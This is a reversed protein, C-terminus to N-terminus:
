SDCSSRTAPRAMLDMDDNRDTDIIHSYITLLVNLDHGLYDAVRYPPIGASLMLSGATHRLDHLRVTAPLGAAVLAPQWQRKYFADREWPADYTLGGQGGVFREAGGNKRGPWLPADLDGSRPHAALYTRLDAVLWGPLGVVRGKGNKPVHVEWGDPHAESTRIKRRTRCVAVTRATLDLDGVNLGSVEGCRLGTYAMFLVLLDYPAALHTVVEAVQGESLAVMMPKTRGTSRDTPLKVDLAPNYALARRQVAYTFVLRTTLYHHRITPPTLGRSQLDHVFDQVDATTIARLSRTGFRPLVSNDLLTRYSRATSPKLGTSHDRFWREAWDGFTARGPAPDHLTGDSAGKEVEAKKAKAEQLTGFREQAFRRKGTVDDAWSWRVEYKKGRTVDRKIIRAM